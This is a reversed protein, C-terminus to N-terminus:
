IKIALIDYPTTLVGTFWIMQQFLTTLVKLYFIYIARISKAKKGFDGCFQLIQVKRSLTLAMVSSSFMFVLCHMTLM